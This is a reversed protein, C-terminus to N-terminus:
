QILYKKNKIISFINDYTIGKETEFEMVNAERGLKACSHADSNSILAINDLMSCRWNM